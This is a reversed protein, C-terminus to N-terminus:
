KALVKVTFAAVAMSITTLIIMATKLTREGLIITFRHRLIPIRVDAIGQHIRDGEVATATERSSNSKNPLRLTQV